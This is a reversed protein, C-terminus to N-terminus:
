NAVLYLKYKIHCSNLKSELATSLEAVMILPQSTHLFIRFGCYRHLNVFKFMLLIIICLPIKVQM